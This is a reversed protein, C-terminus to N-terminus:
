KESQPDEEPAEPLSLIIDARGQLVNGWVEAAKYCSSDDGMTEFLAVAIEHLMDNTKQDFPILALSNFDYCLAGWHMEYAIKEDSWTLVDQLTYKLQQGNLNVVVLNFFVEAFLEHSLESPPDDIEVNLVPSDYVTASEETSYPFVSYKM